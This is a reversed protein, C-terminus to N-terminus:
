GGRAEFRMRKKGTGDMLDLTTGSIQATRIAELAALFRKEIATEAPPCRDRICM